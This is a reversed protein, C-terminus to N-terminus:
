STQHGTEEVASLLGAGLLPEASCLLPFDPARSDVLCRKALCVNLLDRKRWIMLVCILPPSVHQFGNVLYFLFEEGSICGDSWATPAAVAPAAEDDELDCRRSESTICCLQPPRPLREDWSCWGNSAASKLM